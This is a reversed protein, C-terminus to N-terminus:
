FPIDEDCPPRRQRARRPPLLSAPKLLESHIDELELSLDQLEFAIQHFGIDVLQAEADSMMERAMRVKTAIRVLAVDRYM